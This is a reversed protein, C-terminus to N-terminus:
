PDKGSRQPSHPDAPLKMTYLGAILAAKELPALEAKYKEVSNEAMEHAPNRSRFCEEIHGRINKEASPTASSASPSRSGAGSWTSAASAARKSSGTTRNPLRQAADRSPEQTRTPVSDPESTARAKTDEINQTGPLKQAYPFTLICKTDDQNDGFEEIIHMPRAEFENNWAM